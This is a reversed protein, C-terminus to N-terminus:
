NILLNQIDHLTEDFAFHFCFRLQLETLKFTEGTSAEHIRFMMYKDIVTGVKANGNDANM